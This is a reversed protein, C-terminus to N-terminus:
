SSAAAGGPAPPGVNELAEGGLAHTAWFEAEEEETAFGPVEDLTEVLGRGESDSIRDSRREWAEREVTGFRFGKTVLRVLDARESVKAYIEVGLLNGEGDFDLVTSPAVEESRDVGGDPIDVLYLYFADADPDYTIKM